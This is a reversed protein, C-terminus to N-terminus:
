AQPVLRAVFAVYDEKVWLTDGTSLTLGTVGNGHLIKVIHSTNVSVLGDFTKVEIFV